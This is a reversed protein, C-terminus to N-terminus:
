AADACPPDLSAEGTGTRSYERSLFVTLEILRGLLVAEYGAPRAQYERYMGEPVGSGRLLKVRIPIGVDAFLGRVKPKMTPEEANRRLPFRIGAKRVIAL